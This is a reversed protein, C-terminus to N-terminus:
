TVNPMRKLERKGMGEMNTPTQTPIPPSLMPSLALHAPTIPLLSFMECRYKQRDHEECSSYSAM